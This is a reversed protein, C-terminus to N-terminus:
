IFILISAFFIAKITEIIGLRKFDERLTSDVVKRGKIFAYIDEFLPLFALFLLVGKLVMIGSVSLVLGSYLMGILRYRKITARVRFSSAFYFIFFMPWLYLNLLTGAAASAGIAATLGMLAMGSAESLVQIGKLNLILYLVILTIGAIYLSFLPPVKVTSYLFGALGPIIYGSIWPLEGRNGRKIVNVAPSKAMLFLCLSLFVLSLTININGTKIAGTSFAIIFMVWSGQEKTYPLKLSNM